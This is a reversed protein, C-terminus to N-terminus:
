KLIELERNATLKLIMRFRVPTPSPLKFKWLRVAKIIGRINEKEGTLLCTNIVNGHEDTFIELTIIYEKESRKFGPIDKPHVKKLIEPPVDKLDISSRFRESRIYEGGKKQFCNFSEVSINNDEDEALRNVFGKRSKNQKGVAKLRVQDKELSILEEKERPVVPASPKSGEVSIAGQSNSLVAGSVTRRGLQEKGKSKINEELYLQDAEHKDPFSRKASSKKNKSKEAFKMSPLSTPIKKDKKEESINGNGIGPDKSIKMIPFNPDKGGINVKYFVVFSVLIIFITAAVSWPSFARFITRNSKKTLRSVTSFTEFCIDCSAIHDQIEDKRENEITGDILSSIDELSPCDGRKGHSIERSLNGLFKEENKDM